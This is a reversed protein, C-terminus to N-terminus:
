RMLGGGLSPVTQSPLDTGHIATHCQTCKTTFARKMGAEGFPNPVMGGPYTYGDSAGYVPDFRPVYWESEEHGELGAHFHLEHCQLCLFPENQQLLNNAVSGHPSHCTECGESVAEHEFIFPGQLHAHCTLCLEAPREENKILGISGGHVDHCSGCSMHGERVPHHSPYHMEAQVNQHCEFCVMPDNTTEKPAAHISHCDACGVGNLPHSSGQWDHLSESRHCDMCVASVDEALMEGSLSTILAPDGGQDMHDGGEGHCTACGTRGDLVEFDQIRGHITAEFANGLNEHCVLCDSDDALTAGPSLACLIFAAALAVLPAPFRMRIKKNM